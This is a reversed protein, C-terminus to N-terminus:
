KREWDSIASKIISQIEPDPVEGIGSYRQVGIHVIVEGQPGEELHIAKDSLPSVALKLQLVEDIMEVISLGKKDNPSKVENNLISRFGRMPDIKPKSIVDQVPLARSVQPVPPIPNSLSQAEVVKETVTENQSAPIEIHMWNQIQRIVNISRQKQESSIGDPSDFRKGDIEFHWHLAEDISVRLVTHEGPFFSRTKTNEPSTVLESVDPQPTINKKLSATMRSDIIGIVYGAIAAIIILIIAPGLTM